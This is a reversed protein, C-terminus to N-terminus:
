ERFDSNFELRPQQRQRGMGCSLMETLGQDTPHRYFREDFEFWTKIDQNILTAAEVPDSPDTMRSPLDAYKDLFYQRWPELPESSGRYPLVNNCFDNFDLESSWPKSKWAQIAFDINDILYDGSIFELDPQLDYSDWHLEGVLAEASDFAAVMTAYDPYALVEIQHENDLSDLLAFRYFSQGEMNAILFHAARLKLSDSPTRYHQLVIELQPRNEGALELAECVRPNGGCVGTCTIGRGCGALLLLLFVPLCVNKM